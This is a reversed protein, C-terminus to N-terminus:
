RKGEQAKRFFTVEDQLARIRENLTDVQRELEAARAESMRAHLTREELTKQLTRMESRASALERVSESEPAFLFFGAILLLAVFVGAAAGLLLHTAPWKRRTLVLGAHTLQRTRGARFPIAM